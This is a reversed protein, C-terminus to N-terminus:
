ESSVQHSEQIGPDRFGQRSGFEDAHGQDASGEDFMTWIKAQRRLSQLYDREASERRQRIIDQRIEDAADELSVQVAPRIELVRVLHVGAEDHIAPSLKGVPLSFLWQPLASSSLQERSTWGHSKADVGGLNRPPSLNKMGLASNRLFQIAAEAQERSSFQDYPAFTQEWRVMAPKRFRDGQTRYYHYLEQRTVLEDIRTIHSLWEAAVQREPRKGGAEANNPGNNPGNNPSEHNALSARYGMGEARVADQFLLKRDIMRQLELQFLESGSKAAIPMEGSDMAKALHIEVSQMVDHKWIPEGNVQAVPPNVGPVPDWIAVGDLDPAPTPLSEERPGESPLETPIPPGGCCVLALRAVRRVRPSPELYCDKDDRKNAIKDLRKVIEESCCENSTCSACPGGCLKRIAAAAEYRVSETCDDLAELLATEVNPYCDTCGLTALYRIAKIKQEAADEEAKAEAAAKVAPPSDESLNAPDTLALVPPRAELGPFRSGLRNRIRGFGGGIGKFLGNIGLFEPLTMKCCEGAAPAVAVVTTAGAQASTPLPPPTPEATPTSACGVAFMLWGVIMIHTLSKM